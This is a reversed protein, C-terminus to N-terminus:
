DSDPETTGTVSVDPSYRATWTEFDVFTLQNALALAGAADTGDNVKLYVYTSDDVQWTIDQTPASSLFTWAPHGNVEISRLPSGVAM